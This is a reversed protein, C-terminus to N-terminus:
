NILQNLKKYGLLKKNGYFWILIIIGSMLFWTITHVLEADFGLNAIFIVFIIRFFNAILLILAGLVFFIIKNEIIPKKFSFIIGALISISVLGTCLNTILFNIGNGFIINEFYELGFIKAVKEALFNNLFSLDMIEIIFFLTFFILCFKFVFKLINKNEKSVKLVIM